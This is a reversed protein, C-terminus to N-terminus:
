EEALRPQGVASSLEVSLTEESVSLLGKVFVKQSTQEDIGM